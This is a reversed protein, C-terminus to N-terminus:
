HSICFYLKHTYTNKNPFISFWSDISIIFILSHIRLVYVPSLATTKSTTSRQTYVTPAKADRYMKHASANVTNAGSWRKLINTHGVAKYCLSTEWWLFFCTYKWSQSILIPKVTSCLTKSERQEFNRRQLTLQQTYLHWRSRKVNGQPFQSKPFQHLYLYQYEPVVMSVLLFTRQKQDPLKHRRAFM